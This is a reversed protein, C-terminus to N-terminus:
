AEVQTITTNYSSPSVRTTTNKFVLIQESHVKKSQTEARKIFNMLWASPSFSVAQPCLGQGTCMYGIFVERM